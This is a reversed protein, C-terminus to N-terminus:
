AALGLGKKLRYHLLMDGGTGYYQKLTALTMRPDVVHDGCLLELVDEPAIDGETEVSSLGPSLPGSNPSSTINHVASAAATTSSRRPPLGTIKSHVSAISGARARSPILELKDIIFAMIKRARLVRSASLRATGEPMEKLGSRPAPELIFTLKVPDKVRTRSTFLYELLWQPSSMELAEMDRETSSVQSRYTVVWAGADKSEEAILLATSPPVNLPPAEWPPPPHFPYARVTDLIRLQEADRESIKPGKDQEPAEKSEVVTSMPTEATKKKGFGKLKGMLSGGGPTQPVTSQKEAGPTPPAGTSRDDARSPSADAKRRSSFYDGRVNEAPSVTSPSQPIASLQGTRLANFSQWASTVPASKSLSGDVDPLIAPRAAPTALGPINLSPTGTAISGSMARQRHPPALNPREIAIHTPAPSRNISPLSSNTTSPTMATVEAEEAKILGRFLNALTWKGLNVVADTLSMERERQLASKCRTDERMGEIYDLGLEDAYVEADFVRGEELHVVLSGIKTDVQCWTIVMTEGEVREKVLELVESSHKRVANGAKIGRELDLAAAVDAASFRGVCLGRIINWVAVEGETDVTLVHQRDNLLLSRVLGSRGKIVADPEKRLPEAESAVERDEFSLRAQSQHHRHHHHSHHDPEDGEARLFGSLGRSASGISSSRVVEDQRHSSFGFSYPSDPLGLCVLSEYPIGNLRSDKPEPMASDDANASSDSMFSGAISAGSPTTRRPQPPVLRGRVASPIGSPSTTPQPDEPSSFPDHSVSGNRLPPSSAFAVQQGAVATSRSRSDATIPTPQFPPDLSEAADGNRQNYSVGDFNHDLRDVRRGVDKWRKVDASGTATWVYEDDMGVICRIGEDGSKSEYDVGHPVDGERALVVCEADSIDTCQELDVACLHGDRSGSYFRELNPHTSALAWVSSTHHNFTQLCRHAALSWLKITTDSSGTLMYRGDESVVISRVCDSHGVLKGISKDGVRPDWLRIVREPTGAALVRGAPDVGLAYVSGREGEMGVGGWDDAKNLDINLLPADPRLEGTDWVSLQRDLAGSFLLSPYKAWALSRVYDRHRGVLAPSTDSDGMHKHPSWARITRDSSATIVTQNLNCLLMANVWDTHTQASQRFTTAPPSLNALTEKDVEWRDEYPVEGRAARRRRIGEGVRDADIGVWGESIEEETSYGDDDEDFGGSGDEDDDEDDWLEAGDGIREWKVKAGTTGNRGPQVEYRGGRKRKHPVNLEWSAVLGDRGGTYLIGGPSSSDALLTSTDLALSTIGLCHRPHSEEDQKQQAAALSTSSFFPNKSQFPSGITDTKPILHPATTGRRREGLPPLSLLPPPETPSPLIYSVRRSVAVM